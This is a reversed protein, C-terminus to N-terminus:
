QALLKAMIWERTLPLDRIRVGLARSVANGIAAATPGATAEGVGLPMDTGAEVLEIDIEPVESFRLVPYSEWDIPGATDSGFRVQEKLEGVPDHRRRALEQHCRSRSPSGDTESINPGHRLEILGARKSPMLPLNV